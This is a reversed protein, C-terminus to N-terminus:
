PEIGKYDLPIDIDRLIGPDDSEVTTVSHALKRPLENLGGDLEQILGALALPFIIPHGRRGRHSVIVIRSPDGAFADISRQYASRPVTPM